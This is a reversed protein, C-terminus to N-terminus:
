IDTGNGSPFEFVNAKNALEELVPLRFYWLSSERQLEGSWHCLAWQGDSIRHEQRCFCLVHGRRAEKSSELSLSQKTNHKHIFSVKNNM